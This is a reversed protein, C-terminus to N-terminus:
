HWVPLNINNGKSAGQKNPIQGAQLMQKLKEIEELSKAKLIAEQIDIFYWYVVYPSNNSNIWSM